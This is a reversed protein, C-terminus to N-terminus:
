LFYKRCKLRTVELLVLAAVTLVTQEILQSATVVNAANSNVYVYYLLTLDKLPAEGSTSANISTIVVKLKDACSANTFLLYAANLGPITLHFDRRSVGVMAYGYVSVSGNRLRGALSIELYVPCTLQCHELTKVYDRRCAGTTIPNGAQHKVKSVEALEPLATDIITTPPRLGSLKVYDGTSILVQPGSVMSAVNGFVYPQITTIFTIILSSAIVVLTILTVFRM